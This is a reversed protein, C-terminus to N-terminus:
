RIVLSFLTKYIIILPFVKAVCIYCFIYGKALNSSNTIRLWVLLLLYVLLILAAISFAQQLSLIQLQNFKQIIGYTSVILSLFTIARLQQSIQYTTFKIFGFVYNSVLLYLVYLLYFSIALLLMSALTALPSQTHILSAIQLSFPTQQISLAIISTAASLMLTITLISFKADVKSIDFKEPHYKGDKSPRLAFFNYFNDAALNKILAFTVISIAYAIMIIGDLQSVSKQPLDSHYLTAPKINKQNAFRLTLKNISILPIQSLPQESYVNFYTLFKDNYKSLLMERTIICTLKNPAHTSAILTNNNFLALENDAQLNLTDGPKCLVSFGILKFQHKQFTNIHNGQADIFYLYNGKFAYADTSLIVQLAFSLISIFKLINITM